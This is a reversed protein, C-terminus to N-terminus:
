LGPRASRDTGNAVQVPRPGGDCLPVGRSPAAPAPTASDPRGLRDIRRDQGGDKPESPPCGRHTSDGDLPRALRRVVPHGLLADSAQRRGPIECVKTAHGSQGGRIRVELSGNSAWLTQWQKWSEFGSRWGSPTGFCRGRELIGEELLEDFGTRHLSESPDAEQSRKVVDQRLVSVVAVVVTDTHCPQREEVCLLSTQARVVGPNECCGSQEVIDTVARKRVGQLRDEPTTEPDRMVLDTTLDNSSSRRVSALNRRHQLAVAKIRVLNNGHDLASVRTRLREEERTRDIKVRYLADDSATGENQGLWHDQGSFCYHSRDGLTVCQGCVHKISEPQQLVLHVVHDNVM